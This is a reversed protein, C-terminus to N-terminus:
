SSEGLLKALLAELQDSSEFRLTLTGAGRANVSIKAPSGLTEVLRQEMAATDPEVQRDKRRRPAEPQQSAMAETERVNLGKDLVAAMAAEPDAHGLLARAHSFSLSGKRVEQQIPEPLNLLRLVNTVHVRSKGLAQALREQTLGAEDILRSYGEAEEMPNLDERQLNEVLAALAADTDSMEQIVVPVEHLGALGAARWRREGAILQYRGTQSPHPRALLPQLVGRERISAALDDLGENNMAGRPQHPGPDLLDIPLAHMSSSQTNGSMAPMGDGLLAALGRGLRPRPTTGM